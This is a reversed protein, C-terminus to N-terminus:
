GKSRKKKKKFFFNFITSDRVDELLEKTTDGIKDVDDEVKSMLSNFIRTARILHFILIALLIGLIVFGISSIFFFIESNLINGM